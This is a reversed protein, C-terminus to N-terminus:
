AGGELWEEVYVAAAGYDDGAQLGVTSTQIRHGAALSIDVGYPILAQNSVVDQANLGNALTYANSLSAAQAALAPFFAYANAGDDLRIKIFRNAVTADTTFTFTMTVLRWRAGAPVTESFETGAAPNQGIRRLNGPGDLSRRLEGRPYAIPQAGTVYGSVLGAHDTIAGTFGRVLELIAWCQGTIPTGAYVGIRADILWGMGLKWLTSAATRDTNPTHKFEFPEMTGDLRVFRGSCTLTVGAASNLSRLRLNDEGTVFVADGGRTLLELRRDLPLDSYLLPPDTM